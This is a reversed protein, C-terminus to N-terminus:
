GAPPLDQDSMRLSLVRSAGDAGMSVGYLTDATEITGRNHTIIVVQTKAALAGLQDRFRVINAEDLAADVEDLLCFPAPNVRLIAFLLAVATLAREGGSLLALNQLRKGPPQAVIDVGTEARIGHENVDGGTVMLRATGGGFLVGFMEAFEASVQAFTADFRSRMTHRLDTLLGRVSAAAGQVDELQRRLFEQHAAEREYEAVVDQGVFGVRRLRVRLREIERERAQDDAGHSDAVSELSLLRDPDDLELEQAIQRRIANVEDGARERALESAGQEREHDLLAERRAAIARGSQAVAAELRRLEAQIPSRADTLAASRAGLQEAAAAVRQRTEDLDSRERDLAAARETRLELEDALAREQKRLEVLRRQEARQREALGAQLQSLAAAEREDGATAEAERKREAAAAAAQEAIAILSDQVEARRISTQQLENAIATAESRSQRLRADGQDLDRQLEEIWSSLRERHRTREQNAAALVAREAKAEGRAREVSG